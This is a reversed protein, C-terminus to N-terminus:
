FPPLKFKRTDGYLTLEKKVPGSKLDAITSVFTVELLFSGVGVKPITVKYEDPTAEVHKVTDNENLNNTITININKTFTKNHPMLEIVVDGNLETANCIEPLPPISFGESDPIVTGKQKAIIAPLLDGQLAKLQLIFCVDERERNWAAMHKFNTVVIGATAVFKDQYFWQSGKTAREKQLFMEASNASPLIYVEVIM